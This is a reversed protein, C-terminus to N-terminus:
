ALPAIFIGVFADRSDVSGGPQLDGAAELFRNNISELV